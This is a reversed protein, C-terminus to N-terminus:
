FLIKNVVFWQDWLTNTDRNHADFVIPRLFSVHM